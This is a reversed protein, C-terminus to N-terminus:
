FREFQNFRAVLSYKCRPATACDALELRAKMPVTSIMLYQSECVSRGGVFLIRIDTQNSLPSAGLRHGTEGFVVHM